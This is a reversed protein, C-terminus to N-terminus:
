IFTANQEIVSTLAPIIKTLFSSLFSFGEEQEDVGNHSVVGIAIIQVGYYISLACFGRQYKPEIHKRLYSVMDTIGWRRLYHVAILSNEAPKPCLGLLEVDLVSINQNEILINAPSLDKHTLVLESKKLINQFMNLYFLITARFLLPLRHPSKRLAGALYLPFTVMYQWWMRRSIVGDIKSTMSELAAISESIIEQEEKISLQLEGFPVGPLCERNIEISKEKRFASYLRPFRVRGNNEVSLIYNQLAELASIENSMQRYLTGKWRFDHRKLVVEKGNSMDRFIGVSAQRGNSQKKIWRILTFGRPISLEYTHLGFRSELYDGVFGVILMPVSLVDHKM